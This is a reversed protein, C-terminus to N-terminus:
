LELVGVAHRAHDRVDDNEGIGALIRRRVEIGGVTWDGGKHKHGGICHTVKPHAKLIQGLRASGTYADLYYAPESRELTEIFALTHIVAIIRDVKGEIESLHADLRGALEACVEPDRMREGTPGKDALAPRAWFTMEKDWWIEDGHRGRWYDDKDLGLRQDAFSYDYWGLSGVFGVSGLVVPQQGLDRFGMKRCTHSIQHAYKERSDLLEGDRIEIWVDHNGPVFLKPVAFRSFFGLSDELSHLSNGADGALVIVDPRLEDMVDAVAEAMEWHRASTDIHIDSTYAVRM